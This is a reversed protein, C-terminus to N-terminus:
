KHNHNMIAEHAMYIGNYGMKSFNQCIVVMECDSSQTVLNIHGWRVGQKFPLAKYLCFGSSVSYYKKFPEKRYNEFKDTIEPDFLHSDRTAWADYLRDRRLTAASVISFEPQKNKFDLIKKVSPMKFEVDADIVLVYDMDILFGGGDLAKNRAKALNQVRDEEKTSGYFKTGLNESILSVGKFMSYDCNQMLKRTGDTSDNEYISLYFDYEPFYPVMSVIRNYYNIFFDEDNRIITSILIKEKNNILGEPNKKPRHEIVSEISNVYHKKIKKWSYGQSVSHANESLNKYISEQKLLLCKEVLENETNAILMASNIEENSFGRAGVTSSIIPIGYSLAKTMKLHTGSGSEMPNIFAFSNTLYQNLDEDSIEGIIKLNDINESVKIGNGCRGIIIFNFEPLLKAFNAVSKAADNNPPHGSGVFIIDRSNFRNKYNIKERVETGNPILVGDIDSRYYQKLQEFDKESCYTILKAKKLIKREMQEVLNLIDPNNPYLQEGMFIECNHSNYVIPINKINEILPAIAYHDVILLDSQLALEEAMESFYVLQKKLIEFVVDHNQKAFDRILGKRKRYINSNIAPQIQYISKNIKKNIAINDWSFSLFTVDHDSLAELLTATREKGGSNKEWDKLNSSVVLIKAM